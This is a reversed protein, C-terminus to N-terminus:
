CQSLTRSRCHCGAQQIQLVHHYKSRLDSTSANLLSNVSLTSLAAYSLEAGYEKVQCGNPCECDSFQFGTVDSIKKSFMNIKAVIPVALIIIKCNNHPSLAHFLFQVYCSAM